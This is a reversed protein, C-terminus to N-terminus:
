FIEGTELDVQYVFKNKYNDNLNALLLIANAAAYHGTWERMSMGPSRYINVRRYRNTSRILTLKRHDAIFEFTDGQRTLPYFTKGANIWIRNGDCFGFAEKTAAWENKETKTYL